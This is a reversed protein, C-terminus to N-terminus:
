QATCSASMACLASYAYGQVEVLAIPGAPTRGDAHYVSDSSDKWGQNILGSVVVTGRDMAYFRDAVERCFDVYQEVLLIALSNRGHVSDMDSRDMLVRLVCATSSLSVM